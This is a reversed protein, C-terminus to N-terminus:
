KKIIVYHYIGRRTKIGNEESGVGTYFQVEYPDQENLYILENDFQERSIGIKGMVHDRLDSIKVMPTMPSKQVLENYTSELVNVFSGRELVKQEKEKFEYISSLRENFSKLSKDIQGVLIEYETILEVIRDKLLYVKMSDDLYNLYQKKGRLSTRYLYSKLPKGSKGVRKVKELLGLKLLSELHTKNVGTGIKKSVEKSDIGEPKDAFFLILLQFVKPEPVESEEDEENLKGM